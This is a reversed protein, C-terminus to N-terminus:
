AANSKGPMPDQTRANRQWQETANSRPSDSGRKVDKPVQKHANARQTVHCPYTLWFKTDTLRSRYANTTHFWFNSSSAGVPIVTNNNHTFQCTRTRKHRYVQLSSTSTARLVTHCQGMWSGPNGQSNQRSEVDMITCQLSFKNQTEAIM